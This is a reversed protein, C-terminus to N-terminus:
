EPMITQLNSGSKALWPSRILLAMASLRGRAPLSTRTLRPHSHGTTSSLVISSTMRRLARAGEATDTASNPRFIFRRILCSGPLTKARLPQAGSYPPRFYSFNGSKARHGRIGAKLALNKAQGPKVM